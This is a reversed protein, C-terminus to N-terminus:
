IIETFGVSMRYIGANTKTWDFSDNQMRVNLTETATNSTPLDDGAVLGNSASQDLEQFTGNSTLVEGQKTASGSVIGVYVGIKTVNTPFRPVKLSFIKSPTDTITTSFEDSPTTEGASTFFTINYYYTRAAYSGQTLTSVTGAVAPRPVPDAPVYQFQGAAGVHERIFSVLYDKEKQTASSWNLSFERIPDPWNAKTQVVGTGFSVTDTRYKESEAYSFEPTLNFVEGAVPSVAGATVGFSFTGIAHAGVPSAGVFM